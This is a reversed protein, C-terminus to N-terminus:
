FDWGVGTTLGWDFDEGQVDITANDFSGWASVDWYLDSIIEWRLRANTDARIRGSETLSPYLSADVRFDVKPSDFRWRSYSMSLVGEVSNQQEGGISREELGQIAVSTNLNQNNNDILYRGVGGGLTIRYDLSLEDNSEYGGFVLRYLSKRNTWVKRSLTVRSSATTEEDTDSVTARSTLSNQSDRDEYSADARFETQTVGSAKTYAYNASVYIDLRDELRDEIPRLEVIEEWSLDREEFVDTVSVTGPIAGPAVSGFLRQGDGLRVEFNYNSELSAVEKWEIPITGMADTSLRLKGSLLSTIEGTVRDGNYLTIVDTKARAGAEVSAFCLLLATFFGLATCHWRSTTMMRPPPTLDLIM